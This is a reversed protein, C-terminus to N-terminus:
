EFMEAKMEVTVFDDALLKQALGEIKPLEYAFFYRLTMLKGQKFNEDINKVVVNGQKLWQWAIAIIGTMELYLTADSMFREIEQKQALGLLHFTVKQFKQVAESLKQAFNELETQGKAEAIEKEVEALFLKIAKGNKM